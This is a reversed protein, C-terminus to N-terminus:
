LLGMSFCDSAVCVAARKAPYEEGDGLKFKNNAEVIPVGLQKPVDVPFEVGRTGHSLWFNITKKFGPGVYSAMATTYPTMGKPAAKDLDALTGAILIRKDLLVYQEGSPDTANTPANNVYRYLNSDGADFGM